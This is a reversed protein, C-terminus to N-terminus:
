NQIKISGYDHTISIKSAANRDLYYGEIHRDGSDSIDKYVKVDDYQVSGYEQQIDLQYAAKKPNYIRIVTYDSHINIQDFGPMLGDIKLSGYDGSFKMYNVGGFYRSQYDGGGIIEKGNDVSISGYDNNYKLKRLTGIQIKTYDCTLNLNYAYDIKIRSYDAIIRGNKIFSISSNKFYDTVIKNNENLLEGIVFQGYDANLTLRGELRDIYVNGYDNDINLDFSAPMKVEYHIKFNVNNSSRWSFFNWSSKMSAVDTKATIQDGERHLDVQIHDLRNIVKEMDNGDVTIHVSIDVKNQNWTVVNIDGYENNIFVIGNNGVEYTQQVIKTKKYKGEKDAALLLQPLVLFIIILKLGIKKM